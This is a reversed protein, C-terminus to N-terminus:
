RFYVAASASNCPSDAALGRGADPRLRHKRSDPFEYPTIRQPSRTIQSFILNGFRPCCSFIEFEKGNDNATISLCSGTIKRLFVGGNEHEMWAAVTMFDLGAM